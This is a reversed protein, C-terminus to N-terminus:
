AAALLGRDTLIAHLVQPDDNARLKACAAKDRLARSVAALAKLHEAGSGAPAFLGFVLDVPRRDVAGFEVPEELRLFAGVIGTLGEMRAHPIAVGHGVGTPGLQERACLAAVTAAAPLDLRDEAIEGLIQLVRKKSTAHVSARIAGPALISALEM